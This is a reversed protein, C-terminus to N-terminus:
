FLLGSSLQVRTDGNSGHAVDLAFRMVTAAVWVGGGIGRDFRQDRLRSGADYVTAADIFARVGVKGISLPSNVPVRLEITGAATVDGVATAARFGRLTLDRGRLVKLYSPVARDAGDRYVRLVLISGLPGGVYTSADVLTRLPAERGRVGLREVATRVYVARRSLMPDVRTDLTLEAGARSVRNEDVGLSVFDLGTWVGFRLDRVVERDLRVWAQQRVDTADLAINRRSLLSAGGRVRTIRATQLRREIEVGARREGGWTLPFSLRTGPGVIPQMTVLAGYSFGFGENSGLIPLYMMPPLRRATARAATGNRRVVINGEDVIVVLLVQAPDSLSAYRKLVEVREFRGAVRVRAEVEKLMAPTYASGIPVGAMRVIDAEATITNGQARVGVVREADQGALLALTLLAALM